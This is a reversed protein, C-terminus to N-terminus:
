IRSLLRFTKMEASEIGKQRDGWTWAESGYKVVPKIMVKYLKM